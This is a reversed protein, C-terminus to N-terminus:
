QGSLADQLDKLLQLAIAKDIQILRGSKLDDMLGNRMEVGKISHGRPSLLQGAAREVRLGSQAEYPPNSGFAYDAMEVLAIAGIITSNQRVHRVITTRGHQAPAEEERHVQQLSPLGQEDILDSQQALRDSRRPAIMGERDIGEDDQGIVQM